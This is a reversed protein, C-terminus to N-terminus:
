FLEQLRRLVDPLSLAPPAEPLGSGPPVRARMRGIAESLGDLRLEIPAAQAGAGGIGVLRLLLIDAALM